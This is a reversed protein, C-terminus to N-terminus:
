DQHFAFILPLQSSSGGETLFYTRCGVFDKGAVVIRLSPPCPQFSSMGYPAMAIHVRASLQGGPKLLEHRHPLNLRV